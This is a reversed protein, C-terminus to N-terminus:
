KLENFIKSTKKSAVDIGIKKSKEVSDQVYTTGIIKREEDNFIPINIAGPITSNKYESPSRVDILINKGHIKNKDIDEYAFEKFM